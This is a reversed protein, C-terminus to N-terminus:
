PKRENINISWTTPKLETFLENLNEWHYNRRDYFDRTRMGDTVPDFQLFDSVTPCIDILQEIRRSQCMVKVACNKCPCKM